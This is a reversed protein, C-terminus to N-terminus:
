EASGEVADDRNKESKKFNRAERRQRKEEQKIRKALERKRKQFRHQSKDM